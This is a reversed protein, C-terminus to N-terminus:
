WQSYFTKRVNIFHHITYQVLDQFQSIM